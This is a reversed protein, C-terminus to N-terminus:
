LTIVYINCYCWHLIIASSLVVRCVTIVSDKSPGSISLTCDRVSWIKAFWLFLFRLLSPLRYDSVLVVSLYFGDFWQSYTSHIILMYLYSDRKTPILWALQAPRSLARLPLFNSYFTELVFCAQVKNYQTHACAHVHTHTTHTQTNLWSLKSWLQVREAM